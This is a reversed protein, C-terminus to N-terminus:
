PKEEEAKAPKKIKKKIGSFGIEILHEAFQKTMKSWEIGAVELGTVQFKAPWTGVISFEDQLEKPLQNIPPM